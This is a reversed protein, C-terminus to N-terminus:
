LCRASLGVMGVFLVVSNYFRFCSRQFPVMGFFCLFRMLRAYLWAFAVGYNM